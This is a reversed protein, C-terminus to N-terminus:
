ESFLSTKLWKIQLIGAQFEICAPKQRSFYGVYLVPLGGATDM